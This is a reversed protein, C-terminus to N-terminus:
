AAQRRAASHQPELVSVCDLLQGDAAYFQVLGVTSMWMAMLPGARYSRGYCTGDRVLLTEHLQALAASGVGHRQFVNRVLQRIEAPNGYVHM